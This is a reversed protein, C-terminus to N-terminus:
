SLPMMTSNRKEKQLGPFPVWIGVPVQSMSPLHALDRTGEAAVSSLNIEETDYIQRAMRAQILM